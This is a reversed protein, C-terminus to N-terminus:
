LLLRQASGRQPRTGEMLVSYSSEIWQCFFCEFPRSCWVETFPFSCPCTSYLCGPAKIWGIAEFTWKGNPVFKHIHTCINTRVDARSAHSSSPSDPLPHVCAAPSLFIQFPLSFRWLSFGSPRTPDSNTKPHKKMIKKNPPPDSHILLFNSHTLVKVGHYTMEIRILVVEGPIVNVWEHLEPAVWHQPRESLGNDAILFTRWWKWFM